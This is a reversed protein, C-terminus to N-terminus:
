SGGLRERVGDTDIVGRVVGGEDLVVLVGASSAALQELVSPISADSPLAIDPTWPIM